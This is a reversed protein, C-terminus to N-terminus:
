DFAGTAADVGHKLTADRVFNAQPGCLDKESIDSLIHPSYHPIKGRVFDLQRQREEHDSVDQGSRSVISVAAALCAEPPEAGSSPSKM